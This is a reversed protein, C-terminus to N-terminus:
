GPMCLDTKKPRLKKDPLSYHYHLDFLFENCLLRNPHYKLALRSKEKDVLWQHIQQEMNFTLCLAGHKNKNGSFQSTHLTTISSKSLSFRTLQM